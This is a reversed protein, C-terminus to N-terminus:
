PELEVFVEGDEVRAVYSPVNRRMFAPVLAAFLRMWAPERVWRVLQGSTVDFQSGHWPCTVIRGVLKGEALPGRLHSCRAGLAYCAGDATRALVIEKGGVRCARLTGAQIDRLSCAREAM